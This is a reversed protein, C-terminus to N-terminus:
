ITIWVGADYDLLTISSTTTVNVSTGDINIVDGEAVDPVVAFTEAVLSKVIIQRASGTALPLIVDGTKDAVAHTVVIRTDSSDVVYDVATDSEEVKETLAIDIPIPILLELGDVALELDDLRKSEEASILENIESIPYYEPANGGTTKIVSIKDDSRLTTAM